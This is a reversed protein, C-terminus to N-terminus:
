KLVPVQDWDVPETEGTGAYKDARRDLAESRAILDGLERVDPRERLATPLGGHWRLLDEYRVKRVWYSGRLKEAFEAAVYALRVAPAAKDFSARVGNATLAHEVQQAAGGDPGAYRVRFAGLSAAGPRLKVEYLATVSHGPGIEGADVRDDAFDERELRRNEYGLLRWRSVSRPDFEVQIKVDRALVDITSALRDTFLREAEAQDDIYAYNGDGMQALKELLVDNYNAMGVGVTSLAIGRQARERLRAYIAEATTALGSNAVGDSWLIVRNTMGPIAPDLLSYGLELGAEANTSGNPTIEDITRLIVDRQDAPTLPLRLEASDQFTVIGVRDRPTLGALLVELAQKVLYLRGGSAMSGSADVVFVLNAPRRERNDLARTALALHLVHYGPRSPSPFAEASLAFPAQKPLAYDYEFANVFEEVRVASEPILTGGLLYSRTMSYSATDVDISFTSFREEETDVTPNVGYHEFTTDPPLGPTGSRSGERFLRPAEPTANRVKPQAAGSSMTPSNPEPPFSPAYDPASGTSCGVALAVAALALGVAIAHTRPQM